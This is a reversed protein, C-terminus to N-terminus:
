LSYLKAATRWLMAEREAEPVGSMGRTVYERTRPWTSTALPYNTSWMINEAGIFRRTDVGARGYWGTLYCQRKFLQTPTLDYGELHLGDERAQQDAFELQYAGWGLSSEAFVVKLNPHHMLIRSILLNVVVSVTSASRAIADFAAAIGPSMDATSHVRISDASGAHLCLPVGLRECASWIPDYEPGNVHPVDRLEMPVAPYIVGRHGRGVAREIEAVVATAPFLPVICQPVFRDSAAAWEDILWDNYAQVCALELEPDLIRGFTQGGCGAVTPYLISYDVGDADMAKLREAPIYTSGPVDEWRRPECVRDAMAAAATAAGTMGRVPAGDVVWRDSGDAGRDVHPIRDGWKSKSLRSAWVEPHEQVHDDASILGHRIQM